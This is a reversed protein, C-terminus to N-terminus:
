GHNKLLASELKQAFVFVDNFSNYLPVPAIRIVGSHKEAINDERWDTIVGNDALSNFVEKGNNKIALSLQCGREIENKPTLINIAEPITSNIQTVLYEAYNTLEMSKARLKDMGVMDFIELSAVVAAAAIVNVNSLQWGDAGHMPKFGKRMLFREDEDNGWWGAFRPLNNDNAYREHVFAGGINGPGANLYKYTCWVAFDVNWDHLELPVNGVAHALDFGVKAGVAQGATTISKLDFFQGTFYQVGGILVLALTDGAKEIEHIIDDHALTDQGHKPRLEIISDEPDYGHFKVQSEVSYQDSPFAGAEMLIKYRSATPQYFSVMLLHLNVTLSNMIITEVPKAGIIKAMSEKGYTHYHFWPHDGVFHGEVGKKQWATLEKQIANNTSKPQLGLSNGTFYQVPAGDIEPIYFKDRFPALEDLKDLNQAFNQSNEFNM